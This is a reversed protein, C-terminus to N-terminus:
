FAGLGDTRLVEHEAGIESLAAIRRMGVAELHVYGLQNTMSYGLILDLGDAASVGASQQHTSAAVNLLELLDEPKSEGRGLRCFRVTEPVPQQLSLRGRGIPNKSSYIEFDLVAAPAM